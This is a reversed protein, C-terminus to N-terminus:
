NLNTSLPQEQESILDSFIKNFMFEYKKILKVSTINLFPMFSNKM